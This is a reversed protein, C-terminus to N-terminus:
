VNKENVSHDPAFLADGSEKSIVIICSSMGQSEALSYFGAAVWVQDGFREVVTRKSATSCSALMVCCGALLLKM